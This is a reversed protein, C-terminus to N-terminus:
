FSFRFQFTEVQTASRTSPLINKVYLLEGTQVDVEPEILVNNNILLNSQSTTINTLISAVSIFPRVPMLWVNNSRVQLVRFEGDGDTTIIDDANYESPDVVGIIYCQTATLSTFPSISRYERPNKLLGIQRFDNDVFIDNDDSAVGMNVVVGIVSACLEDVSDFGHGGVPSIIPRIIADFGVPSTVIATAWNYKSGPNTITIETIIGDIVTASAEAESGDGIIEIATSDGIYGEGGDIVDIVHIGGIIASEPVADNIPHLATRGLVTTLSAGTGIGVITAFIFSYGQGQSTVVIDSVVGNLDVTATATAGFGDGELLVTTTGNVYGSGGSNISISELYGNVDFNYGGNYHRIPAWTSTLFKTRDSSPIQYMFKWRYDDATSFIATSTGTPRILSPAGENNNICKYVNFQDTVVYFSSSSLVTAGSTAPYTPSMRDDYRDYTAGNIWPINRILFVVDGQAIKKMFVIDRRIQSEEIRSDEPIPPITDNDWETTKGIFAYFYDNENVIDRYLSRSIESHNRDTLLSTM